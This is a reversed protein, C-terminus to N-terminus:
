TRRRVRKRAARYFEIYLPPIRRAPARLGATMYVILLLAYFLGANVWGRDNGVGFTNGAWSWHRGVWGLLYWTGWGLPPLEAAIFGLAGPESDWAVASVICLLGAIMWLLGWFQLPALREAVVLAEVVNPTPRSGTYGFGLFVFLLGYVILVGGRRDPTHFKLRGHPHLVPWNRVTM